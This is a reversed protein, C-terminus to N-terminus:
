RWSKDDPNRDWGDPERHAPQGRLGGRFVVKVATKIRYAGQARGAGGRRGAFALVARGSITGSIM